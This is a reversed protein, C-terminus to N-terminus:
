FFSNGVLLFTDSDNLQFDPFIGSWNIYASIESPRFLAILYINVKKRANLQVRQLCENFSCSPLDNLLQYM